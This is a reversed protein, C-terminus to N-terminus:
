ATRQFRPQRTRKPHKPHHPEYLVSNGNGDLVWRETLRRQRGALQARRAQLRLWGEHTSGREHQLADDCAKVAAALDTARGPQAVLHAYRDALDPHRCGRRWALQVLQDARTAAGSDRWYQYTIWLAADAVRPPQSDDLWTTYAGTGAEKGTTEFFGRAYREPDGLAIRAITAPWTDLSCPEGRRCNPCLDSGDCRSLRELRPAWTNAWALAATRFGLRGKVPPIHDLLPLLAALVTAAGATDNDAARDALAAEVPAILRSPAPQAAKIRDVLHDCRLQACDIIDTSWATLMRNGARASLAVSHSAIHDAPLPPAAVDDGRPKGGERGPKVTLTTTGRAAEALLEGIDTINRRAARDFLAIAAEACALADAHADHPRYHSVALTDCLDRLSPRKGTAGLYAALRMTDLTPLEPLDLGALQLEHRLVAIDFGVNHGVVILHEDDTPRLAALLAPAVADASPEGAVHEDTIGHIRQSQSDIPVGPNILTNWSSRVVGGRCTVQAVAVARLPGGGPTMTTETDIVVLRVGAWLATLAAAHHSDALDAPETSM